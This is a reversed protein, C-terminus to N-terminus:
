QRTLRFLIGEGADFGAGPFTFERTVEVFGLQAHLAISAHNHLDAFYYAEAAHEFIWQLRAVTLAHGLRRRRHAADVLLGSLYYGPPAVTGPADAPAEFWATRGYGVIAGAVTV